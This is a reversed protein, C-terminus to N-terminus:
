FVEEIRTVRGDHIYIQVTSRGNAYDLRYGIAAGYKNELPVRRQPEGAVQYVSSESDGVTVVRSGFRVSDAAYAAFAMLMAALLVTWRKM